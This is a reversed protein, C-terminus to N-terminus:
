EIKKKEAAKKKKKKKKEGEVSTVNKKKKAGEVSTVNKKKKDGEVSKVNKKKKVGEVSKVTEKEKECELSKTKVTYVKQCASILSCIEADDRAIKNLIVEASRHDGSALLAQYMRVYSLVNYPYGCVEYERWVLRSNNLDKSQACASLLFDLCQRSPVLGLEDKIAWLLDMGFQLHTSESGAIVAYAIFLPLSYNALIDTSLIDHAYGNQRGRSHYMELHLLQICPIRHRLLGISPDLKVLKKCGALNLQELNPFEEFNPIEILNYSYSLCLHRLNPLYKKGEWLKEISSQVLILEVLQIPKFNSPLYMFPYNLWEVYRLKNSLCSLSKSSNVYGGVQKIILLRLNSFYEVMVVDMLMKEIEEEFEEESNVGDLLNLVIAEGNKEMHDSMVGHLQGRSWLRKSKRSEKSSNEQAIKRGYLARALTTKGIGGMGYIGIARVDDVPNLLLHTQLEQIPSDLGVLDKPVCSFNGDRINIIRQVIEKIHASQPKDRVDWGSITGRFTVFVDYNNRKKPLTVLALASSNSSSAM